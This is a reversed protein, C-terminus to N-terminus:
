MVQPQLSDSYRIRSQRWENKAMKLMNLSLENKFIIAKTRAEGQKTVYLTKIINGISKKKRSFKFGILALKFLKRMKKLNLTM